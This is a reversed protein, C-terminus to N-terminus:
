TLAHLNVIDLKSRLYLFQQKDLAETFICTVQNKSSIYRTVLEGSVLRESVFHYDIEIHKTREYFVSNKAIHLAAQNDCVVVDSAIFVSEHLNPFVQDM